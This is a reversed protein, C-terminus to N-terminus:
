KPPNVGIFHWVALMLLIVIAVSVLAPVLVERMTQNDFDTAWLYVIVGGFLCALIICLVDSVAMPGVEGEREIPERAM